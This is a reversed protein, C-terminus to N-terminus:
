VGEARAEDLFKESCSMICTVLVLQLMHVWVVELSHRQFQDTFGVVSLHLLSLV